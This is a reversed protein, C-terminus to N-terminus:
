LLTDIIYRTFSTPVIYLTDLLYNFTKSKRRTLLYKYHLYLYNLKYM